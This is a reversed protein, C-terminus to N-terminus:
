RVESEEESLEVVNGEDRNILDRMKKEKISDRLWHVSGDAFLAHYGGKYIGGFKPLPKEPDYPIDEPKTWPIKRKAEVVMLTASLGDLVDSIKTAAEGDFMAGPGDIAFYGCDTSNPDANPDRFVSPMRELIQKNHPSDWPENKRYLDYQVGANVFPLIAVRWSYKTKGDPGTLVAPPFENFTDHYNHLAIAIGKLNTKIRKKTEASEDDDLSVLKDSNAKPRADDKQEAISHSQRFGLVMAGTAMLVAVLSMRLIKPLRKPTQKTNRLMEIRRLFTRHTPLFARAPWSLRREPQRLALEALTRLYIQHGGAMEAATADAALEQELRLRGALWHVAPHYFHLVVGIQALLWGLYDSRSIHAIEHALVARQQAATWNRWELPLLIVPQRWGITAATTVTPTERVEIRRRCGAEVCLSDVMDRLAFDQLTRGNRRYRQVTRLGTLFRIAGISLGALFLGALVGPWSWTSLLSRKTPTVLLEDVLPSLAQDDSTDPMSATQGDNATPILEVRFGVTDFSDLEWRPWPSFAMASLAVVILLSGLAVLSGASPALRRIALYLLGCVVAALSVQLACWLLTIGLANM